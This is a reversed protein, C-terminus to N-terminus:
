SGGDGGRVALSADVARVLATEVMPEAAALSANITAGAAKKHGGGGFARAIAQVDIDGSARFSAKVRDPLVEKLMCVVEIGLVSRLPEMVLDLDVGIRGARDLLPRDIRIMGIRGTALLRSRAIGEALVGVSDPDNRRYLRDYISAADAGAEILESAIQLTRANTNSYRFWGTDSVLAVFMGEAAAPGIPRDLRRYLRHVLEGSAAATEDVFCYEGDARDSGVHHDIVAITPRRAEVASRLDGLRSLEACDLLVVVEAEPLERTADHVTVPTHQRLFDLARLPADPLVIQVAKGLDRLLHYLGVQAGVCDGDPHEHGTLIFSQSRQLLAVFEQAASTM